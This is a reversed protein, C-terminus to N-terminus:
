HYLKIIYSESIAKQYLKIIYSFAPINPFIMTKGSQGPEM